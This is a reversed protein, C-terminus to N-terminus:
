DEKPLIIVQVNQAYEFEFAPKKEYDPQLDICTGDNLVIVCEEDIWGGKANKMIQERDWKAGEQFSLKEELFEVSVGNSATHTAFKSSAEELDKPIESSDSEAIQKRMEKAVEQYAEETRRTARLNELANHERWKAFHRAFKRLEEDTVLHYEPVGNIKTFCGDLGNISKDIEDELEMNTPKESELTSLFSLLSNYEKIFTEIILNYTLKSHQTLLSKRREIEAKIQEIITM